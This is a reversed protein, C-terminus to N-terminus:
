SKGVIPEKVYAGAIQHTKNEHKKQPPTQVGQEKLFNYIITEWYKWASHTLTIVSPMM